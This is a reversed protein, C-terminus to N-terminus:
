SSRRFKGSAAARQAAEALAAQYALDQNNKQDPIGMRQAPDTSLQNLAATLGDLAHGAPQQSGVSLSTHGTSQTIGSQGSLDSTIDSDRKSLQQQLQAAKMAAQAQAFAGPIPRGYQDTDNNDFISEDFVTGDHEFDLEDALGDDFYIDDNSLDFKPALAAAPDSPRRMPGEDTNDGDLGQIAHGSVEDPKSPMAPGLLMHSGSTPTTTDKTMAFGIVEGDADRPTAVVAPTHPTALSSAPNSRQFVFGAFNEQDNDPDMAADLDEEEEYDVNVGPIREELGDDDMMADYDFSDEDFDDFRSGTDDSTKKEQERQRHREELLKEQSASGIMDFSFRSSTSKMHKPVASAVSDRRSAKSASMQRSATTRVSASPVKSDKSTASPSSRISNMSADKPQAPPVSQESSRESSPGDGNQDALGADGDTAVPPTEHPSKPAPQALPAPAPSEPAHVETGQEAATEPGSVSADTNSPAKKPRPASFDHVRTGRIRPDYSPEPLQSEAVGNATKRRMLLSTMPNKLFPLGKRGKQPELAPGLTASPTPESTFRPGGPRKGYSASSGQQLDTPTVFSSSKSQKTAIVMPKAALSTNIPPPPPKARSLQSEPVHSASVARPDSPPSTQVTRRYNQLAVGGIFGPADDRYTPPPPASPKAADHPPEDLRAFLSDSGTSAVRTIPPLTPPKQALSPSRPRADPRRPSVDRGSQPHEPQAAADWAPAQDPLPSAPNSPARRHFRLHSLM